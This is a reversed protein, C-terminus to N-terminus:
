ILIKNMLSYTWQNSPQVPIAPGCTRNRGSPRNCKKAAAGITRDLITYIIKWEVNGDVFVRSGHVIYWPRIKLPPTPLHAGGRLDNQVEGSLKQVEELFDQVEGQSLKLSLDLHFNSM